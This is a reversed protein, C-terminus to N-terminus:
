IAEMYEMPISHFTSNDLLVIGVPIIKGSEATQTSFDILTGYIDQGESEIESPYWYRNITCKVSIEQTM